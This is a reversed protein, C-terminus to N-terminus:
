VRISTVGDLLAKPYIYCSHFLDVDYVPSTAPSNPTLPLRLLLDGGPCAQLQNSSRRRLADADLEYTRVAALPVGGDSFPVAKITTPFALLLPRSYLKSQLTPESGDLTYRIKGFATQNVLMVEGRGSQLAANRGNALQFDVAFASDAAAIAQRRYRQM